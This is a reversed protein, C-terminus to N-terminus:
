HGIYSKQMEIAKEFDFYCEEVEKDIYSPKPVSNYKQYAVSTVFFKRFSDNIEKAEKLKM